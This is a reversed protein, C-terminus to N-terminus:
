YTQYMKAIHHEQKLHILSPCLYTYKILFFM